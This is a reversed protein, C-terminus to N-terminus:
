FCGRIFASPASKFALLVASGWPRILSPDLVSLALRLKGHAIQEWGKRYPRLPHPVGLKTSAALTTRFPKRSKCKMRHTDNPLRLSRSTLKAVINGRHHDDKERHSKEVDSQQSKGIEPILGAIVNRGRMIEKKVAIQRRYGRRRAPM